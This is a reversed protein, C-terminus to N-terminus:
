RLSGPSAGRARRVRTNWRRLFKASWRGSRMCSVRSLSCFEGEGRRIGARPGSGPCRRRGPRRRLTSPASTAAGAGARRRPTGRTGPPGGAGGRRARGRAPGTRAASSAIRARRLSASGNESVAACFRTMRSIPSSKRAPRGIRRRRCPSTPLPLVITATREAMRAASHPRWVARMAGVSIRASCCKVVIKRIKPLVRKRASSRVPRTFPLARACTRSASAPPRMSMSTPVCASRSSGTSNRRSPRMTMSSCCRKPTAWRVARAAFASGDPARGCRRTM